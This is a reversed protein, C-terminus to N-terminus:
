SGKIGKKAQNNASGAARLIKEIAEDEGVIVTGGLHVGM